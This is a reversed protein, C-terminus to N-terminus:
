QQANLSQMKLYTEEFERRLSSFENRDDQPKPKQTKSTLNKKRETGWIHRYTDIDM